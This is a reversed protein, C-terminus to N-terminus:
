LYKIYMPHSKKLSFVIFRSKDSISSFLFASPSCYVMTFFLPSPTNNCFPSSDNQLHSFTGVIELPDDSCRVNNKDVM